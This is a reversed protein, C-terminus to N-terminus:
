LNRVIWEVMDARSLTPSQQGDYGVYQSLNQELYTVQGKVVGNVLVRYGGEIAVLEATQGSQM